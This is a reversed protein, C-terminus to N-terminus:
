KAYDDLWYKIEWEIASEGLNRIRVIPAINRSVNDADHVAERVVHITKSPSDTYVTEFFVLRANLNNRPSVEIAERAANSNSVLTPAEYGRRIRLLFDFVITNLARVGLYALISWLILEPIKLLSDEAAPRAGMRANLYNRLSPELVYFLYLGLAVVVTAFIFLVFKNKQSSRNAAM